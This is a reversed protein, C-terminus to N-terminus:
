LICCSVFVKVKRIELLCQQQIEPQSSYGRASSSYVLQSSQVERQARDPVGSVENQM